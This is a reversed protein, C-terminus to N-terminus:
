GHFYWYFCVASWAVMVSGLVTFAVTDIQRQRLMKDDGHQMKHREKLGATFADQFWCINAHTFTFDEDEDDFWEDDDNYSLACSEGEFISKAQVLRKADEDDNSKEKKKQKKDIKDQKTGGRDGGMNPIIHPKTVSNRNKYYGYKWKLEVM